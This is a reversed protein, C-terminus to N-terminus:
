CLEIVQKTTLEKEKEEEAKDDSQDVEIIGGAEIEFEHQVTAVIEDDGGEFKYMLDRIEREETPNLMEELTLSTGIICKQVKLEDVATVLSQEVDQLQPPPPISPTAPNTAPIPNNATTIKEIAEMAKLEDNEAELVTNLAPHWEQDIYDVEFISKLREEAQPLTM